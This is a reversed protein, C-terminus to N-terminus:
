IESETLGPKMEIERDCGELVNLVGASLRCTLLSTNVNILMLNLFFSTWRVMKTCQLEVEQCRRADMLFTSFALLDGV